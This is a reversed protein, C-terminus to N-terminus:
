GHPIGLKNESMRHSIKDSLMDEESKGPGEIVFVLHVRAVDLHFSRNGLSDNPRNGKSM